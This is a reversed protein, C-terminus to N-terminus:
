RLRLYVQHWFADRPALGPANSTFVVARGDHSISPPATVSAAVQAGIDSVTVREITGTSLDTVFVDGGNNTDGEVLNSAMSTYTVHGGDASISPSSSEGNAEVTRSPASVRVPRSLQRDYVFVDAKRNTDGAVLNTSTSTFSVYRNDASITPDSSSGNGQIGGEALSIRSRTNAQRDYLVIDSKRNTDGPVQRPSDSAYLVFQGDPSITPQATNYQEVADVAPVSVRTTTGSERDHVYVDATVSAGGGPALNSARTVFAVYRGDASISPSQSFSDAQTGDDAVSVRTTVGARLDRVFVDAQDNTDGAVLNTAGSTFALYRGDASLAPSRSDGNGATGDPAVSALSTTTADLDRVFLDTRMRDTKGAVLNSATSAFAVFRGDASMSQMVSGGNAPSGDPAVSVRLTGGQAAAAAAGEGLLAGTSAALLAAAVLTRERAFRRM